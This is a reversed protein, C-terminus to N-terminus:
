CRSSIRINWESENAPDMLDIAVFAWATLEVPAVEDQCLSDETGWEVVGLSAKWFLVAVVVM